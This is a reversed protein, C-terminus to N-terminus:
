NHEDPEDPENEQEPETETEQESDANLGLKDLIGDIKAGYDSSKDIVFELDPVRRLQVTQSLMTRLAGKVSQLEDLMGRRKKPEMATFFVKARELDRSCEVGTIIVDRAAEKKIRNALLLSIERQLQKNIRAMRFAAM